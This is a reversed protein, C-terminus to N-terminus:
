TFWLDLNKLGLRSLTPGLCSIRSLRIPRSNAGLLSILLFYEIRMRILFYTFKDQVPQFLVNQAQDKRTGSCQHSM